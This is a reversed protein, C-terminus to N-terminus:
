VEPFEQVRLDKPWDFPDRSVRLKFDSSLKVGTGRDILVKVSLQKVYVRVGAQWCQELISRVWELRCLRRRPGSECGAILWFRSPDLSIGAPSDQIHDSVLGRFGNSNALSAGSPRDDIGRAQSGRLGDRRSKQCKEHSPNYCLCLTLEVHELLPELSLGMVDARCRVIHKVVDRAAEQTSASALIWARGLDFSRAREPRKTLIIHRHQPTEAMVRLCADIMSTPVWAGFMDTMSAWFICRPKKWRRVKDLKALDLYIDVKDRSARTYPLGTGGNPLCRRNHAEAYCRSCGIQCKECHTGIKQNDLRRARIPNISEGKFGPQNLWDIKHPM